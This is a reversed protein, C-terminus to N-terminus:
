ALPKGSTDTLLTKGSTEVAFPPVPWIVQSPYGPQKTMDRLAQRYIKWQNKISDSLPSDVTQTWDTADLLQGRRSLVYKIADETSQKRKSPKVLALIEAENTATTQTKPTSLVAEIQKQIIADLTDGTPYLGNEVFLPVGILQDGLEVTLIGQTFHIINYDYNM